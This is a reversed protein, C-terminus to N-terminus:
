SMSPDHWLGPNTDSAFGFPPSLLASTHMVIRGSTGYKSCCAIGRAAMDLQVFWRKRTFVTTAARPTIGIRWMHSRELSWKLDLGMRCRERDFMGDANSMADSRAKRQRREHFTLRGRRPIEEYDEVERLRLLFKGNPTRPRLRKREIKEWEVRAEVVPM